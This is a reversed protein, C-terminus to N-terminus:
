ACLGRHGVSTRHTWDSGSEEQYFVTGVLKDALPNRNIQPREFDNNPQQLLLMVLIAVERLNFTSRSFYYRTTSGM